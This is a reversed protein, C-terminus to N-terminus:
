STPCIGGLRSFTVHRPIIDVYFVHAVVGALSFSPPGLWSSVVPLFLVVCHFRHVVAVQVLFVSAFRHALPFSLLTLALRPPGQGTVRGTGEDDDNSQGDRHSDDWAVLRIEPVLRRREFAM